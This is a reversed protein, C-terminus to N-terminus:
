GANFGLPAGGIPLGGMYLDDIPGRIGRELVAPGLPSVSRSMSGSM